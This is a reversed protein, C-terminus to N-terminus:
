LPYCNIKKLRCFILPIWKKRQHADTREISLIQQGFSLYWSFSTDVVVLRAEVWSWHFGQLSEERQLEQKLYRRCPDTQLWIPHFLLLRPQHLKLKIRIIKFVKSKPIIWIFWLQYYFSCIFQLKKIAKIFVKVLPTM